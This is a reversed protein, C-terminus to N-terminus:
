FGVLPCCEGILAAQLKVSILIHKAHDFAAANAGFSRLRIKNTSSLFGSLLAFGEANM